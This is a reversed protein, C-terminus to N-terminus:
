DTRLLIFLIMYVDYHFKLFGLLSCVNFSLLFFYM